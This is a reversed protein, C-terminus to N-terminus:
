ITRTTTSRHLYRQQQQTHEEMLLTQLMSKSRKLRCTTGGEDKHLSMVSLHLMIESLRDQGMKPLDMPWGLMPFDDKNNDSLVSGASLAPQIEDRHVCGQTQRSKAMRERKAIVPTSVNGFDFRVHCYGVDYCKDPRNLSCSSAEAHVNLNGFRTDSVSIMSRAICVTL